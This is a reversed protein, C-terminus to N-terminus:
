RFRETRLRVTRSIRQLSGSLPVLGPSRATVRLVVQEADVEIWDFHTRDAGFSGLSARASAEAAPVGGPQGGATAVQQAAENAAATVASTAYLHILTQLGLLMLVMFILFGVLTGVVATGAEHGTRVLAAHAPRRNLLQQEVVPRHLQGSQQREKGDASVHCQFCGV